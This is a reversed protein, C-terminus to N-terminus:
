NIMIELMFINFEGEGEFEGYFKELEIIFEFVM